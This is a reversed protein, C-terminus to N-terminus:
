QKQEKLPKDGSLELCLEFALDLVKKLACELRLDPAKIGILQWRFCEIKRRHRKIKRLEKNSVM